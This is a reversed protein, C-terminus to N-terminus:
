KSWVVGRELRRWILSIVLAGCQCLIFGVAAATKGGSGRLILELVEGAGALFALIAAAMTRLPMPVVWSEYVYERVPGGDGPMQALGWILVGATIIAAAYPVLVYFRDATGPAPLCGALVELVAVAIGFCWRRVMAGKPTMGHGNESAYLPGQYIYEGTGSQIFYSARKARGRLKREKAM